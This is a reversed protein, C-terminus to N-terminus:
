EFPKFSSGGQRKTLGRNLGLTNNNSGLGGVEGVVYGTKPDIVVMGSQGSNDVGKKYRITFYYYMHTYNYKKRLEAIKEGIVM